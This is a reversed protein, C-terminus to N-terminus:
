ILMTNDLHRHFPSIHTTNPPASNTDIKVGGRLHNMVITDLKDHTRYKNLHHQSIIKQISHNGNTNIYHCSQLKIIKGMATVGM